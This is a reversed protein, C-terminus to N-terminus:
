PRRDTLLTWLLFPGGLVSTVVGVPVETGEFLIRGFTDAAVVLFAGILASGVLPVRSPGALAGALVPAALAVFAIPGGIGVALGALTVALGLTVARAVPPREGLAAAVDETFRLASLRRASLLAVPLLVALGAAVPVAV